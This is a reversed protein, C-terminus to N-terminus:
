NYIVVTTGLFINSHIWQAASYPLRICGHSLSKGLENESVLISHFFYGGYIQTCYIARSDTTLANRKFGTTRYTGTITPTGPAGTVCSWYYQLSWNNASGKFVGVKHSSRDVAILWQTGSSNGWIRNQMAQQDAPMPPVYTTKEFTFKQADSASSAQLEINSNNRLANGAIGIAYDRNVASVIKIGGGDVYEIFWKQAASGNPTWQQINSGEAALASTLDLAKGNAANKFTYSGDSNRTVNWKQAGSNNKQYLQINAGNANSASAVDIAYNVNKFVQIMYTGNTLISTPTVNFLQAKTGNWGYVQMSTGNSTEASTADLVQGTQVNELVTMGEFIRATWKQNDGEAPSEQVAMGNSNVALNMGSRISQLTYTNEGVRKINWKQASSNNLSYLQVKAGNSMSGSAVDLVKNSSLGSYVTVIGEPLFDTVEILSFKQAASNNLEYGQINTGNTASAASVDVALGTGKNVFTYTGDENKVVSFLQNDNNDDSWQQINTGNTLKGSDVDLLRGSKANVIKYYGRESETKVFEFSFLQAYTNNFSYLQINAGNSSSGSNVDIVYRDDISSTIKFYKGKLGLDECPEVKPNLDIFKFCQADTGNNTYTQVNTGNSTAASAIDLCINSWLASEIRYTGDDNKTVIWKQAYSDNSSQYQQVNARPATSAAAVDLVKGSRLNTFTVYGQEDHTVVWKQADTMNSSYLQVNARDVLSGSTVDLVKDQALTSNILYTGDPIIESNARAKKDLDTRLASESIINFAQANTSNSKYIQINTNNASSANKIDLSLNPWLASAIAYTGDENQSVIWKQAYTNNAQYQQVNTGSLAQGSAVDLVKGSNVNIFTAYGKEDYKVTWQQAGTKNFDYLQVNVGNNNSGSAVDVVKNSTLSTEIYYVANEDLLGKSAEAKVDLSSLESGVELFNWSQANTGNKAYLGVSTGQQIRGGSIDLVMGNEVNQIVYGTTAETVDWRQADSNSDDLFALNAGQGTLVKQDSNRKIIYGDSDFMISLADNRPSSMSSLRFTSSLNLNHNVEPVLLYTGEQITKIGNVEKSSPQSELLLGENESNNASSDQINDTNSSDSITSETRLDASATESASPHSLDQEDDTNSISLDQSSNANAESDVEAFAVSPMLGIVLVISLLIKIYKQYIMRTGDLVATKIYKVENENHSTASFTHARTLKATTLCDTM